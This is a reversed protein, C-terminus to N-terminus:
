SIAGSLTFAADWVEGLSLGEGLSQQGYFLIAQGPGTVVAETISSKGDWVMDKEVPVQWTHPYPPTTGGDKTSIVQVELCYQTGPHDPTPKRVLSQFPSHSPISGFAETEECGNQSSPPTLIHGETQINVRSKQEHLDSSRSAMSMSVTSMFQFEPYTWEIQTCLGM